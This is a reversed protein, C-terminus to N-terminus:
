GIAARRSGSAPGCGRVYEVVRSASDVDAASIPETAAALRRRLASLSPVGVAGAVVAAIALRVDIVALGALVMAPVIILRLFYTAIEGIAMVANSVDGALLVAIDGSHRRELEEAPMTRLKTGITLRLHAIVDPLERHEFRSARVRVAGEIALLLALGVLLWRSRTVDGDVLAALVPLLPLFAVGQLVAATVTAQLTRQWAAEYPGAARRMMGLLRKV